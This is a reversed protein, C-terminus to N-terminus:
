VKIKDRERSELRLLAVLRGASKTLLELDRETPEGYDPWVRLERGDAVLTMGRGRLNAAFRRCWDLVNQAGIDGLECNPFSYCGSRDKTPETMQFHAQRAM